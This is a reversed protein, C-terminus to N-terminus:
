VVIESKITMAVILRITEELLGVRGSLDVMCAFHELKPSVRNSTIDGLDVDCSRSCILWFSQNHKM